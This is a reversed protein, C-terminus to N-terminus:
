KIPDMGIDSYFSDFSFVATAFHSFAEENKQKNLASLGNHLSSNVKELDNPSFSIYHKHEADRKRTEYQQLSSVLNAVAGLTEGNHRSILARLALSRPSDELRDSFSLCEEAANIDGYRIFHAALTHFCAAASEEGHVDWAHNPFLDEINFSGIVHSLLNARVINDFSPPTAIPALTYNNVTVELNEAISSIILRGIVEQGTGVCDEQLLSCAESSLQVMLTPLNGPITVAAVMSESQFEELAIITDGTAVPYVVCGNGQTSRIARVLEDPSNLLWGDALIVSEAENWKSLAATLMKDDKVCEVVAIDDLAARLEPIVTATEETDLLILKKM